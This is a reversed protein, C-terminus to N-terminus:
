VSKGLAYGLLFGGQEGSSGKQALADIIAQDKARGLVAALEGKDLWVGHDHCVDVQIGDKNESAMKKSCIPCARDGEAVSARNEINTQLDEAGDHELSAFFKDLSSRKDDSM